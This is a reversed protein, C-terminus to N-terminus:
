QVWERVLMLAKGLTNLGEGQHIGWFSDNWWNSEIIVKRGTGILVQRAEPCQQFKALLIQLMISKKHAEWDPHLPVLRGAAKAERPTMFTFSPDPLLTTKCSMYAAESNTWLEGGWRFNEIHFNSLPRHAEFLGNIATPLDRRYNALVEEKLAPDM